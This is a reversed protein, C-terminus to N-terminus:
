SDSQFRSPTTTRRTTCARRRIRAARARRGRRRRTCTRASRGRASGSPRPARARRGARSCSRRSRARGARGPRTRRTAAARPPAAAPSAGPGHRLGRALHGHGLAADPRSALTAAHRADGDAIEVEVQVREGPREVQEQREDQLLLELEDVHLDGLDDEGEELPRASRAGSSRSAQPSNRTSM